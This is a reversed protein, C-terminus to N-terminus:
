ASPKTSNRRGALVTGCVGGILLAVVGIVAALWTPVGNNSTAVDNHSTMSGTDNHSENQVMGKLMDSANVFFRFSGTSHHGEDAAVTRWIVVYTESDDGQMPVTMTKQDKPNVTADATNVQKGDVDLITLSSGTPNVEEAFTVSVTTPAKTLMANAKPDSSVYEAHASATGAFALLFGFCLSVVVILQLTIRSLGSAARDALKGYVKKLISM